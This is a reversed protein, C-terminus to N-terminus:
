VPLDTFLISLNRSFVCHSNGQSFRNKIPINESGEDSRVRAYLIM